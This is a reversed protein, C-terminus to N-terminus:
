KFNYPIQLEPLQQLIQFPLYVHASGKQIFSTFGESGEDEKKYPHWKRILFEKHFSVPM